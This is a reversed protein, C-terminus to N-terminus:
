IIQEQYDGEREKTNILLIGSFVRCFLMNLVM